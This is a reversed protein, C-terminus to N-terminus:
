EPVLTFQITNLLAANAETIEGPVEIELRHTTVTGSILHPAVIRASSDLLIGDIRIRAASARAPYAAMLAAPRGSGTADAVSIGFTTAVVFGEGRPMITVGGGAPATKSVRGLDLYGSSSGPAAMLDSQGVPVFSFSMAGDHAIAPTWRIPRRSRGAGVCFILAAVALLLAARRHM